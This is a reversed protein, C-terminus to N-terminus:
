LSFPLSLPLAPLLYSERNASPSRKQLLYEGLKGFNLWSTGGQYPCVTREADEDPLNSTYNSSYNFNYNNNHIEM